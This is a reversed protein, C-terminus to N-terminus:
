RRASFMRQAVYGRRWGEGTGNRVVMQVGIYVAFAILPLTGCRHRPGFPTFDSLICRIPLQPEPRLSAGRGAICNSPRCGASRRSALGMGSRCGNGNQSSNFYTPLWCAGCAAMATISAAHVILVFRMAISRYPQSRRLHLSVVRARRARDYM